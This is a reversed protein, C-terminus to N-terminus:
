VVSKRDKFCAFDSTIRTAVYQQGLSEGELMLASLLNEDVKIAAGNDFGGTWDAHSLTASATLGLLDRVTNRYEPASLVRIQAPSPTVVVPVPKRPATPAGAESPAEEFSGVKLEGVCACTLSVLFLQHLRLRM